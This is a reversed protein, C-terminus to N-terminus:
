NAATSDLRVMATEIANLAIRYIPDAALWMSVITQGQTHVRLRSIFVETRGICDVPTMYGGNQPANVVKVGDLDELAELLQAESVSSIAGLNLMVSQGYFVPTQIATAIIPLTPSELLIALDRQLIAETYPVGNESFRGVQPISNFAIRAPFIAPDNDQQNFLAISQTALEDIAEKGAVSVPYLATATLWYPTVVARLAQVVDAIMKAVPDALSVRRDLTEDNVLPLARALSQSLDILVCAFEQIRPRLQASVAETVCLFTVDVKSFDFGDALDVKLERTETNLNEVSCLESALAYLNNVHKGSELADILVQGVAGTAGVVAINWKKSM